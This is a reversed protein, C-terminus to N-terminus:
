VYYCECLKGYTYLERETSTPPLIGGDPKFFDDSKNGNFYGLLGETQNIFAENVEVALHLVSSANSVMVSAGSSSTIILDDNTYYLSLYEATSSDQEFMIFDSFSDYTTTNTVILNTDDEVPLDVASGNVYVIVQGDSDEVQVPQVGDQVVVVASVVTANFPTTEPDLLGLRVQVTFDNEDSRLLVYEGYGNFTYM